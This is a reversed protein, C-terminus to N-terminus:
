SLRLKDTHRCDADKQNRGIDKTTPPAIDIPLCTQRWTGAKIEKLSPSVQLEVSFYM